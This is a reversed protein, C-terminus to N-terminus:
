QGSVTMEGILITPSAISGRFELDSGVAQVNRLMDKLNGAITVESVPYALEGNEIWLGAAGQSYDGTVVNVGSGILETIYFGSKVQGIIAERSDLGPKLYFNGHGVSANGTIGRSANGTTKLGLKRATYSNLLYSKLVGNEIVVTRRSPVGEDDFPQSGFLQPITADDIITFNDSAVQEGIKETLFSAKRYISDGAVAEFIDGLLSRATRPEFVIPVKQTPAKRANLRRITREAAIRGIDSPKELKQYSRAISSWYDREMSDGDKAVPVASLSCSSGRYWGAFGRSNAFYRAGDYAGFSAGESNVIRPDVAFAAAEAEMAQQIRAPTDLEGIDDSFLQLDVDISGLADADPLGAHPDESTLNALEIASSIMRGIGDKSLDSTFCSGVRQGILLRVGVGRSSAEKLTELERMRVSASFESGLSITCEADNAGRALALRIVEQATDLLEM